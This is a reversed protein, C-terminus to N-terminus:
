LSWCSIGTRIHEMYSQIDNIAVAIEKKAGDSRRKLALKDFWTESNHSALEDVLTRVDSLRKQCASLTKGVFLSSPSCDDSGVRRYTSEVVKLLRHLDKLKVLLSKILDDVINVEQIYKYTEKVTKIALSAITIISSAPDM